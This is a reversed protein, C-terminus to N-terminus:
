KGYTASHIVKFESPPWYVVMSKGVIEDRTVFGWERSDSSANRNDGLVFFQNEPVTVTDGPKLFNGNSTLFTSPLYESEDVLQNNVYVRGDEVRVTDGETAIVRKIYDKDHNNPAKFVIVEGKEVPGLRLTILNTLIYEGDHFNPMMSEGNVQYPRFLFAYIVVFIGGAIVLTEFLDILLTYLKRLISM